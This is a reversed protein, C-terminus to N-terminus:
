WTGICLAAIPPADSRTPNSAQPDHPHASAIRTHPPSEARPSQWAHSPHTPVTTPVHHHELTIKPPTPQSRYLTTPHSDRKGPVTRQSARNSINDPQANAIPVRVNSNISITANEPPESFTSHQHALLALAGPKNTEHCGGFSM